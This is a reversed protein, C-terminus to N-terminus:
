KLVKIDLTFIDAKGLDFDSDKWFIIGKKDESTVFFVMGGPAELEVRIDSWDTGLTLGDIDISTATEFDIEGPAMVRFRTENTEPWVHDGPVEDEYYNGYLWDGEQDKDPSFIDLKNDGGSDAVVFDVTSSVEANDLGDILSYGQGDRTSFATHVEPDHRDATGHLMVGTYTLLDPDDAIVNVELTATSTQNALDVAEVKFGTVGLEYPPDVEFFYDNINAFTTVPDGVQIDGSARVIFFTVTQIGELSSITGTITPTVQPDATFDAEVSSDTFEIAPASSADIVSVPIVLESENDRNDVAEIRFGTMGREYGTDYDPEEEVTYQTPTEGFDTVEKFVEEGDAYVQVMTVSKLGWHSSVSGTIIPRINVVDRVNAEVAETPFGQYKPGELGGTASVEWVVQATKNSADTVTATIGTFGSTYAPLVNFQYATGGKESNAEDFTSLDLLVEDGNTTNSVISVNTLGSPAVAWGVINPGTQEDLDVEELASRSTSMVISPEGNSLDDDEGCGTLLVFPAIILMLLKASVNKM